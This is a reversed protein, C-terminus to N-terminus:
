EMEREYAYFLTTIMEEVCPGCFLRVPAPHLEERYIVAIAELTPMNIPPICRNEKYYHWFPLFSSLKELNTPRM